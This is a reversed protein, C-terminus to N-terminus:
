NVNSFIVARGAGSSPVHWSEAPDYKRVCGERWVRTGLQESLLLSLSSTHQHFESLKVELLRQAESFLKRGPPNDSDFM